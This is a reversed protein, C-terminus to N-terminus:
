LGLRDPDLVLADSHDLPPLSAAWSTWGLRPPTDPALQLVPIDQRALVVQLDFALAPGAYLRVLDVLAQLDGSGPLLRRFLPLRVPGLRIRFSGQVDRVRAGAFSDVGLRNFRGAGGPGPLASQEEPPVAIWREQFQLVAVPCGLHDALM